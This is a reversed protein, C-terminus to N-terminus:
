AYLSRAMMLYSNSSITLNALLCHILIKGVVGYYYPVWTLGWLGSSGCMQLVGLPLRKGSMLTLITRPWTGPHNQAPHIYPSNTFM